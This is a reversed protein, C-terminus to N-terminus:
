DAKLAEVPPVRAAHMGPVLCAAFAVLALGALVALFTIGDWPKVGFLMSQLASTVLLSLTFGLAAGWLVLRLGEAFVLRYISHIPAGIALRVAFERTRQAVSYSVIGYLGACALLAAVTAFASTLWSASRHLYSAPSDEIKQQMREPQDVVVGPAARAVAGALAPLISADSSSSRVTLFASSDPGQEFSAYAVNRPEADIAQEQIDRVVGIVEMSLNQNWECLVHKGIAEEGPFFRSAMTQNIIVVPRSQARDEPTFFRGQILSAQVTEFYGVGATLLNAEVGQGSYSRGPVRFHCYNDSGGTAVAYSLAAANVGPLSLVSAQIQRSFSVRAGDIQDPFEIQMAVLHQPLIGLDVHQLNFYSKGLLGACVLLLVTIALEGVMLRSGFSRWNKGTAYRGGEHLAQTGADAALATLPVAAFLAASLIAAFASFAAMSWSPHLMRLSPLNDQLGSPILSALPSIIGAAIVISLVFSSFALLLGEIAYQRAQRARSAGLAGRIAMDKRKRQAKVLVLGAVNLVAILLLLTAGLSLAFLTPRFNGLLLDALPMVTAGRDGNTTPSIAAIRQAIQQLDARGREIPIGAKLRGIGYFAHCRRNADGCFGHVTIWFEPSNAPAFHFRPPLVGIIQFSQSDLAVMKGVIAPDSGFRSQWAQHSLIVSLSAQPLEDGPKFDRGLAPSVGLTRFFGDSVRAVPVHRLGGATQFKMRDPRYIALSQFTANQRQWDRFDEYSIHFQSGVPISEYLAVLHSPERYPLPRLLTADVLAFMIASFALGTSLVAISLIPFFPERRFQRLTLRVDRLSDAVLNPM